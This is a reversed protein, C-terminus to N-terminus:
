PLHLIVQDGVAWIDNPGSGWVGRFTNTTGTSIKSWALGDWHLVTGGAGVAWVDSASSGWINFLDQTTGSAVSTWSIGNWHAILGGEGVSWVDNSASGWIGLLPTNLGTLNQTWSTGNWHFASAARLGKGSDDGGGVVWVDNASSGWANQMFYSAGSTPHLFQFTWSSGDWHFVASAATAGVGWVDNPGSGWLGFVNVVDNPPFDTWSTGQWHKFEVSLSEGAQWVDNPGSGWVSFVHDAFPGYRSPIFAAAWATGDWHYTVSDGVAWVDKPGSGWIAWLTGKPPLPTGVTVGAVGMTTGDVVSTARVHFLGQATPAVYLGTSSISGGTNGEAISWTVDTNATGTVVAKFQIATGSMANITPPTVAVAITPPAVPPPPQMGGGGSCGALVLLISFPILANEARSM